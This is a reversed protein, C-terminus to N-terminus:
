KVRFIMNYMHAYFIMGICIQEEVWSFLNKLRKQKDETQAFPIKLM